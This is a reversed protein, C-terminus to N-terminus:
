PCVVCSAAGKAEDEVEIWDIELEDGGVPHARASGCACTSEIDGSTWESGCDPCRWRWPLLDIQLGVDALGAEQLVAQWALQMAMPEIARMPGAVLHVQRM